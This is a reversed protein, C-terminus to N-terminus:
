KDLKQKTSTLLAKMFKSFKPMLELVEHFSISVLIKTLMEKFRTFLGAEDGQLPKKKIFPYPMKVYDLLESNPDNLIQKKTRIWTSNKDIM